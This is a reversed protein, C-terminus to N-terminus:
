IYFDFAKYEEQGGFGYGAAISLIKIKDSSQMLTSTEWSLGDTLTAETWAADGV